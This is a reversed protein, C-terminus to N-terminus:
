RRGGGSMSAVGVLGLLVLGIMIVVVRNERVWALVIQTTGPKGDDASGQIQMNRKAQEIGDDSGAQAAGVPASRTATPNFDEGAEPKKQVMAAAGSGFLGGSAAKLVPEVAGTGGLPGSREVATKTKDKFELGVSKGQLDILVDLTGGSNVVGGPTAAEARSSRTSPASQSSRAPPEVDTDAPGAVAAGPAILWTAAVAAAILGAALAQVRARSTSPRAATKLM